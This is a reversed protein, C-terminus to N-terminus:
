PVGVGPTDGVWCGASGGQSSNPPIPGYPSQKKLIKNKVDEFDKPSTSNYTKSTKPHVFNTAGYIRDGIFHQGSLIKASLDLLRKDNTDSFDIKTNTAFQRGGKNGWTKGGAVTLKVLGTAFGSHKNSTNTNGYGLMRCLVIEM